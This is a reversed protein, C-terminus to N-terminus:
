PIHPAPPDECTRYLSRKTWESSQFTARRQKLFVVSLGSTSSPSISSRLAAPILLGETSGIDATYLYHKFFIHLNSQYGVKVYKVSGRTKLFLAAQPRHSFVLITHFALLLFLRVLGPCRVALEFTLRFYHENQKRAIKRTQGVASNKLLAM